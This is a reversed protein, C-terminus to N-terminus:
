KISNMNKADFIYEKVLNSFENIINRLLYNDVSYVYNDILKIPLVRPSTGTIFASEMQKIESITVIEESIRYNLKRCIKIVNKRTVGPLVDKLPPTIVENGKIFFINTRSGETIEKNKNVLLTEYVRKGLKVKETEKRFETNILKCNPDIREADYLMTKVGLQYCIIEPYPHEIFYVYVYPENALGIVIKINSNELCNVKILKNISDVLDFNSIDVNLGALSLSNMMREFHDEWFVLINKEVRLVEYISKGIIIKEFDFKASPVLQKNHIFFDGKIYDM